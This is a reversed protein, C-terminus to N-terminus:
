ATEEGPLQSSVIERYVQCCKLLEQHKGIGVVRGKDLVIIRDADIITSVRQAVILVTSAATERKLAARLRADTKFDLASFSDDFIYIEPKRVLARAISLRQKQGGSLNRGGQAIVSEYGEAMSDIFEAAQAIRAAQRIEEETANEKGLRINEAISASFLVPNQPVYGIKSRLTDLPIERIDQGDVLIQGSDVDYFRPILAVLTSKGAGTGGILATVEGPGASFTIDQLVPNQADPYKFTVNRFEIKGKSSNLPKVRYSDKIAPVSDLIENIREASASARPIMVFIMSVMVLSFMIQAVYQIFAMLSGVQMHGGAVRLGGLWIIAVTTLNMILMMVPMLVSMIRNVKIATEMFDANAKVFRRNEYSTRNFARIVRIGALSERLVLNLRDIKVQMQKFLPIGKRAIYFIIAALLPIVVVLSLSLMRDEMIAMIIGGLCMLPANVMMRMSMLSVQQIQTIDNTTRTILSATGFKYFEQLSFEEIKAFFTNRLDRGFSASAKAALFSATIMCLSGGAVVLLMLGGVQFIFRTDGNIIGIDVIDAMLAPLLLQAMAQLFTLVLVAIISFRYPMLFRLLKFM